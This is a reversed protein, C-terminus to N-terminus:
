KIRMPMTIYLHNEDNDPKFLVQSKTNIIDMTINESELSKLFECIYDINFPIEIKEGAFEIPIQYEAAGVESNAKLELLGNSFEFNIRRSKEETMPRILNIGGELEKINLKIRHNCEKPIVQDFKPFKEEIIRSLFIIDDMKFLIEKKSPAITVEGSNSNLVKFLDNVTRNPIIVAIEEPCSSNLKREVLGLRYGDSGVTTIFEGKIKVFVGNLFPKNNDSKLTAYMTKRLLEKLLPQPLTITNYFEPEHLTPFQDKNFGQTDTKFKKSTIVVKNEQTSQITIEAEKPLNRVIDSFKNALISINGAEIVNAEISCKLATELNTVSLTVTGGEAEFLIHSLIEKVSKESIISELYALREVINERKIIIKM